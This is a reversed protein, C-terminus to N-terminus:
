ISSEKKLHSLYSRVEALSELELVSQLYKELYYASYYVMSHM